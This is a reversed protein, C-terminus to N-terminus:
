SKESRLEHSLMMMQQEFQQMSQRMERRLEDDGYAKIFQAANLMDETKADRWQSENNCYWQDREKIELVQLVLFEGEARFRIDSISM